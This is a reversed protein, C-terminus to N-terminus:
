VAFFVAPSVGFRKSLAAIQQNNLKRNGSLIASVTSQGGLEKALDTQKLSHQEMLFELIEAGTIRKLDAAYHKREYEEVLLGLADMYDLIQKKDSALNKQQLYESLKLLVTLAQQHHKKNRIIHLPFVECLQTYLEGPKEIPTNKLAEEKLYDDIQIAQM